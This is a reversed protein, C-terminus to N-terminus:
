HLLPSPMKFTLLKESEAGEQTDVHVILTFHRMYKRDEEDISKYFLKCDLMFMQLAGQNEIRFNISQSYPDFGEPLQTVGNARNALFVSQPADTLYSWNSDLELRINLDTTGKGIYVTDTEFVKRNYLAIFEMEHKNPFDLTSVPEGEMGAVRVVQNYTDAIYLQDNLVTVDGPFSYAGNKGLNNRLNQKGSGLFSETRGNYPDVIKIKNNYQDAVYLNNDYFTIGGLGQLRANKANGDVDGFEFVGAGVLIDVKKRKLTRIANSQRETFYIVGESDSTIGYPEALDSKHTRGETFGFKGTGAVPEAKNTELDMKWIQNWGTMTFYLDGDMLTLDTPQNLGHSGGEISEPIESSRQGNGLITRVKGAKLDYVRIVDNGTDAIYLLSDTPHFVMGQPFSFRANVSEGDVFGEAGSGIINETNGTPSTRLIRHNRTDSIFLNYDDGSEVFAPFTLLGQHFRSTEIKATSGTKKTSKEYLAINASIDGSIEAGESKLVIEGEPDFLINTPWASVGYQDWLAFTSDNIVPFPIDHQVIALRVNETIRESAYKGSHVIIIELDRHQESLEKMQKLQGMSHSSSSTWFNLLTFKGDTQLSSPSYITNLWILTDASETSQIKAQISDNGRPLENSNVQETQAAASISIAFFFLLIRM